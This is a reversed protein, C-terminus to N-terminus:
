RERGFFLFIVQQMTGNFNYPLLPPFLMPCIHNFIVNMRYIAEMHPLCPGSGNIIIHESNPGFSAMWAKYEESNMVAQDTFHVIYRLSKEGKIYGQFHVFYRTLGPFILCKLNKLICASVLKHSSIM